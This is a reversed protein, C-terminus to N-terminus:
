RRVVVPNSISGDVNAPNAPVFTATFTTGKGRRPALFVFLGSRQVGTSGVTQGNAAIQVTGTAPQGNDLVVVGLLLTGLFPLSLGPALLTGSGAKTVTVTVPASDAAPVAGAGTGGGSYHAVVDYSGAPTGAPLPLTATGGAVPATGLVRDGSRFEVTGTPEASAQVTATLVVQSLGYVQSTPAATLTVSSTATVTLPITVTTGSPDATLTLTAPGAALREPLDFKVTTAGALVTFPGVEVPEGSAPTLVGTVSTNAPAGRSTLDLGAVDFSVAGGAAIESPQNTVQVAHRAFDPSLPSSDALYSIWADRDILGSDTTGSGQTFVRFNDGGSLLFSFTGVRYTAAPDLPTGNITVSTIHSGEAAQPDFTYTVNSSLGLQLYPRSPVNGNADRQWQQELMTTVQAGTLSTTGLNNLFPLVGNAESYLIAGDADAPNAGNAAFCLDARLGGPNVVGFDAGGRDAPALSDRLANAVLNGLTSEAARNDRPGTQGTQVCAATPDTYATTIDATLTGVRQNGVQKAHDLAATVTDNVPGLVTPYAAILDAAPTTSRAVNRVTSTTVSDTDRDVTLTIQGVNAGYSGTQIVPRTGTGGPVPAQYAYTQHTHANLIAAVKPSTGNVLGAFVESTLNDALTGSRPGGEHYDAILVDAEGNDPNGDTLQDAVRNVAAVPDGFDLTSVGAPSVLTPTEVTVAGIVGVRVGNVTYVGYEPLAPTTTGKQYVNAGLYDWRANRAGDPGIVRDTLDAFGKDFEHNGVASVQMGLENFVDITPQDGAVASAFESAGILDGAGVLLTNEAGGAQRLQEITGAFQVTTANIRGHFDNVTLINLTVPDAAAAPTAGVVVQALAVAGATGVAAIRRGIRQQWRQRM